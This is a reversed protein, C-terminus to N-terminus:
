EPTAPPEEGLIAEEEGQVAEREIVERLFERTPPEIGKERELEAVASILHEFGEYPAHARWEKRLNEIAHKCLPWYARIVSGLTNWVADVPIAEIRQLQGLEDFFHYVDWAARNLHQVEVMDEGVFVNDLLYKAAARRRSLFLQSEFRDSYRFLIETSRNLRARQNQEVLSQETLQAQRRAIETQEQFSQRQETLSQETLQAQRKATLAAWIAGIGTAIGGLAIVLTLFTDM